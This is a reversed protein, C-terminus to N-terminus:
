AEPLIQDLLEVFEPTIEGCPGSRDFLSRYWEISPDALFYTSAWRRNELEVEDVETVRRHRRGENRLQRRWRTSPALDGHLHSLGARPFRLKEDFVHLEKVPPLWIDPHQQLGRYLWTTGAKQAGIGLFTPGSM